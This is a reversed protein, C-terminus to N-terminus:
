DSDIPLELDIDLGLSIGVALTISNTKPKSSLVRSRQTEAGIALFYDSSKYQMAVRAHSCQSRNALSGPLRQYKKSM